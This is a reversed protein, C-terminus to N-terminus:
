HRNMNIMRPIMLDIVRVATTVYKVIENMTFDKLMIMHFNKEDWDYDRSTILIDVFNRYDELTNLLINTSDANDFIFLTKKENNKFYDLVDQFILNTSKDKTPIGLIDAIKKFDEIMSTMSKAEIWIINGPYSNAYKRALETKGVKAPGSIVIKNNQNHSEKLQNLETIRGLFPEVPKKLGYILKEDATPEPDQLYYRSYMHNCARVCVCVCIIQKSNKTNITLIIPKCSYNYQNEKAAPSKIRLFFQAFYFCM